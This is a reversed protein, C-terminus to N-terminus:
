QASKAINQHNPNNSKQTDIIHYGFGENDSLRYIEERSIKNTKLHKIIDDADILDSMAYRMIQPIGHKRM